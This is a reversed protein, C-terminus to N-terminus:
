DEWVWRGAQYPAWDAGVDTPHWVQGYPPVESWVGHNDLDEAGYVGPGVHQASNSQLLTRDRAENWRDWEDPPPGGVIQFEPDAATGRAQMMQGASVWQSGRPTFVEVDGARSMVETDGGESVSIRYIGQKSPRVSVSPTDVEVNINSPRLMRFTVTGRAIEMQYRGAELQTLRVEANGGIRLMNASDFQVEARSNPATSIRDDSLLPANVIGAVWDGSDGRRVSVEGNMMSIRAVGRQLDDPDQARVPTWLGTALLVAGTLAGFRWNM